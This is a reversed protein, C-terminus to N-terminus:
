RSSGKAKGDGKAERQERRAQAGQIVEEHDDDLLRGDGALLRLYVDLFTRCRYSAEYKVGEVLELTRTWEEALEVIVPDPRLPHSLKEGTLDSNSSANLNAYMAGRGTALWIVSVGCALAIETLRRSSASHGSELKQITQQSVGAREGLQAQTLRAHERAQTIRQALSM